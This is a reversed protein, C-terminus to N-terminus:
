RTPASTPSGHSVAVAGAATTVEREAHHGNRVVLRHGHEDLQDTHAEVYAAVEARLAAALMQRAGDRVVQDLLSGGAGSPEDSENHEPVGKLIPTGERAPAGVGVRILSDNPKSRARSTARQVGAASLWGCTRIM